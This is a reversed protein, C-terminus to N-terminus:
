PAATYTLSTISVTDGANINTSSLQIDGGGGVNSVSGSLIENNDLDRIRFDAATGTAAANTDATIANATATGNAAAGFATASFTLTALVIALGATGFQLDGTADTSGSDIADVVLDALANRITTSHTLAM